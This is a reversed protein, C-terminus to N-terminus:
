YQNEINNLFISICNKMLKYRCNHLFFGRNKVPPKEVFQLFRLLSKKKQIYFLLLIVIYLYLFM